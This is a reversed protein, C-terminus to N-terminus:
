LTHPWGGRWDCPMTVDDERFAPIVYCGLLEYVQPNHRVGAPRSTLSSTVVVVLALRPV